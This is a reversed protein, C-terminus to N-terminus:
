AESAPGSSLLTASDFYLETDDRGAVPGCAACTPLRLVENFAFEMTPLHIALMKGVTFSTGTLCFNITELATHSALMGCLMPELPLDGNRVQGDALASKYSQYSANERLNMM